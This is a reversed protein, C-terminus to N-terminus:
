HGLLGWRGKAQSNPPDKDHRNKTHKKKELIHNFTEAAIDVHTALWELHSAQALAPLYV